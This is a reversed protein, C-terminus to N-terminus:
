RAVSWFRKCTSRDCFWRLAGDRGVSWLYVYGSGGCASCVPNRPTQAPQDLGLM